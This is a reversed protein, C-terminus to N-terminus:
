GTTCPCSIELVTRDKCEDACCPPASCTPTPCGCRKRKHRSTLGSGCQHTTTHEDFQVMTLHVLTQMGELTANRGKFRTGFSLIHGQNGPVLLSLLGKSHLHISQCSKGQSNRGTCLPQANSVTTHWFSGQSGPSCSAAYTYPGVM